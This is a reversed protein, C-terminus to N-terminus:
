PKGCFCVHQKLLMYMLSVCSTSLPYGPLQVLTGEACTYQWCAGSAGSVVEALRSPPCIGVIYIFTTIGGGSTSDIVTHEGYM